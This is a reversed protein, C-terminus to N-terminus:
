RVESAAGAREIRAESRKVGHIVEIKADLVPATSALPIAPAPAPRAAPRVSKVPAPTSEPRPADGFLKRMTVGSTSSVDGDLPNRLVLQITAQNGALSLIEADTPSVLLNVVQSVVPRGEATRKMDQGSSLVTINQLITRTVPIVGTEGLAQGSAVVDVHSGPVVFGAAGVVENVRVGVARMGKPIFAALGGGSGRPALRGAVLIENAYVTAVVSRDIADARALVADAPVPEPRQAAVFDQEKIVQGAELQTRAVLVERTPVSAPNAQAKSIMVRYLLASAASAFLFCSLLVIGIRRNM